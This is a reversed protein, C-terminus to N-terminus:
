GQMSMYSNCIYPFYFLIWPLPHLFYNSLNPKAPSCLFRVMLSITDLFSSCRSVLTYRDEYFVHANFHKRRFGQCLKLLCDRSLMEKLLLMNQRIHLSLHEYRWLEYREHPQLSVSSLQDHLNIGCAWLFGEINDEGFLIENKCDFKLNLSLIM